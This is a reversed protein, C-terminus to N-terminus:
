VRDQACLCDYLSEALKELTDAQEADEESLSIGLQKELGMILLIKKHVASNIHHCDPKAIRRLLEKEETKGENFLQISEVALKYLDTERCDEPLLLRAYVYAAAERYFDERLLGGQRMRGAALGARRKGDELKKALADATM